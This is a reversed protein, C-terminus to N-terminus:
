GESVISVKQISYMSSPFAAAFLKLMGNGQVLRALHVFLAKLFFLLAVTSRESVNFTLHFFILFFSIGYLLSKSEATDKSASNASVLETNDEDSDKWIEGELDSCFDFSGSDSCVSEESM